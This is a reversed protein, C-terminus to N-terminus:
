RWCCIPASAHAWDPSTRSKLICNKVTGASSAFASSKAALYFASPLRLAPGNRCRGSERRYTSYRHLPYSRRPYRYGRNMFSVKLSSRLRPFPVKLALAPVPIDPEPFRVQLRDKQNVLRNLIGALDDIMRYGGSNFNDRQNYDKKDQHEAKRRATSANNLLHIKEVFEGATM